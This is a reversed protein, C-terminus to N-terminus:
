IFNIITKNYTCNDDVWSNDAILYGRWKLQIHLPSRDGMRSCEKRSWFLKQNKIEGIQSSSFFCMQVQVSILM